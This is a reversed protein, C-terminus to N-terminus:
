GKNGASNAPFSSLPMLANAMHEHLQSEAPFMELSVILLLVSTSGSTLFCRIDGSKIERQVVLQSPFVKQHKLPKSLTDDSAGSLLQYFIHFNREGRPQKVVRSKELLDLVVTSLLFSFLSIGCALVFAQNLLRWLFTHVLKITLWPTWRGLHMLSDWSHKRIERPNGYFLLPVPSRETHPVGSISHAPIM